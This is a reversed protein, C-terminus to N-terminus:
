LRDMFRLFEVELQAVDGFADSFDRVRQVAAYDSMPDRESVTKLYRTFKRTYTPNEALFFTFAWSFSYADLTQSRFFQDSTVLRTLDGNQRRPMYKLRFWELRESNTRSSRTRTGTTKRIGPAELLTALGECLWTPTVGARSHIGINYSVQHTTEHIITGATQGSLGFAALLSETDDLDPIQKEGSDTQSVLRPDDYLAIRNTQLSYYGRLTPSFSMKDRRCYSAFEAQTGFVIAVLPTDPSTLDFGRVRYYSDVSRYVSEFLQAYTQAKGKPGCVLYHSTGAVEYGKPFEKLLQGRFESISLPRYQEAVREFSTLTRIPLRHMEGMRDFIVCTRRDMAVLKGSWVSDSDRLEILRNGAFGQSEGSYFVALCVATLLM